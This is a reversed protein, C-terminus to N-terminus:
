DFARQLIALWSEPGDQQVNYDAQHLHPHYPPNLALIKARPFNKRIWEAIEERARLEAAHGVIFLDYEASRSLAQRAAENGLASSVTYGRSKLLEARTVMLSEDYAVQFVRAAASRRAAAPDTSNTVFTPLISSV